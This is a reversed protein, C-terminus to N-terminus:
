KMKKLHISYLGIFLVTFFVSVYTAFNMLANNEITHSIYFLPILGLLHVSSYLIFGKRKLKFMWYVALASIASVAFNTANSLFFFKEIMEISANLSSEFLDAMPNNSMQEFQEKSLELQQLTNHKRAEYFVLNILAQIGGFASAIWSLIALVTILVPRKPKENFDLTEEM